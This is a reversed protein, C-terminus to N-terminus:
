LVRLLGSSKRLVTLGAQTTADHTVKPPPRALLLGMAPRQFLPRRPESTSFEAPLASLDGRRLRASHCSGHGHRRKRVASLPYTRRLPLTLPRSM